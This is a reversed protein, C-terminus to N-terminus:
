YSGLLFSCVMKAFPNLSIKNQVDIGEHAQKSAKFASFM